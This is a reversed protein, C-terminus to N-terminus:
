QSEESTEGLYVMMFETKYAIWNRIQRNSASWCICSNILKKPPLM